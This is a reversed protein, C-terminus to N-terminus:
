ECSICVDASLYVIITYIDSMNRTYYLLINYYFLLSHFLSYFILQFIM